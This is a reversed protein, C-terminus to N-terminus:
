PVLAAFAEDSNNEAFQRLLTGDGTPQM